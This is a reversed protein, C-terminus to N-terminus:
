SILADEAAFLRVLDTSDLLEGDMDNGTWCLVQREELYELLGHQAVQQGYRRERKNELRRSFFRVRVDSTAAALDTATDITTGTTGLDASNAITAM